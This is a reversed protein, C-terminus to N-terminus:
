SRISFLSNVIFIGVDSGTQAWDLVCGGILFSDYCVAVSNLIQLYVTFQETMNM